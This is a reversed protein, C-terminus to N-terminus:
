LRSIPEMHEIRKNLYNYGENSPDGRRIQGCMDYIYKHALSHINWIKRM